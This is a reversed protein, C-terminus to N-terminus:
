KQLWAAVFQLLFGFFLLALAAKSLVLHWNGKRRGEESPSNVFTVAGEGKDTYLQVIPPYFYMLIAAVLNLLIGGTNLWWAYCLIGYM